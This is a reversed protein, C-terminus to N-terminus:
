SSARVQISMMTYNIVQLSRYPTISIEAFDYTFHTKAAAPTAIPHPMPCPIPALISTGTV